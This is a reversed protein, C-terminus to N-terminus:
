TSSSKSVTCPSFYRLLRQAARSLTGLHQFCCDVQLTHRRSGRGEEWSWGPAGLMEQLLGHDM